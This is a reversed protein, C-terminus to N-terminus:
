LIFEKLNLVKYTIKKRINKFAMNKKNLCLVVALSSKFNNKLRIESQEVVYM